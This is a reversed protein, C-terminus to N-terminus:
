EDDIGANEALVAGLASWDQEARGRAMGSIFNQHILAALPMPAEAQEAAALLLRMDKAGLKMQFGPETKRRLINNGYNEFIPSKVLNNMMSHFNEPDIGSKQVLAFVEGLMEIMSAIIFNGALKIVNAHHPEPGAEFMGQGVADFLPRCRKVQAPDGGPIVWLKKAEAMDPRGFVPAAIFHQGESQHIETLDRSFGPSITSMSAHVADSPLSELLSEDSGNSGFVIEEVASDDSLMTMAVEVGDVADAVSDAVRAGREGLPEAKSRTRNWVAVEHGAAILNAAMPRGMSGTGLFAVKM